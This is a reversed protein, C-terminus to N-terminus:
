AGAIQNKTENKPCTYLNRLTKFEQRLDFMERIRKVQHKFASIFFITLSLFGLNSISGVGRVRIIGAGWIAIEWAIYVALTILLYKVYRRKCITISDYLNDKGLYHIRYFRKADEELFEYYLAGPDRIIIDPEIDRILDEFRSLRKFYWTLVTKSLFYKTVFHLGWLILGFSLAIALPPSTVALLQTLIGSLGLLVIIAGLIAYKRNEKRLDQLAESMSNDNVLIYRKLFESSEPSFMKLLIKKTDVESLLASQVNFIMLLEKLGFGFFKRFDVSLFSRLYGPIVCSGFIALIIKDAEEKFETFALSIELNVWKSDISNPTLLVVFYDCEWIGQSIKDMLSDGPKISGEDIWVEVGHNKLGRALPEAFLPKDKHAHCLFVKKPNTLSSANPHQRTYLVPASAAKNGPMLVANKGFEFAKEYTEGAGLADYFGAAFEIATVSDIESSMGIVVNIHRNIAKAQLQSYAANLVVCKVSGAFLEFLGSLADPQILAAMGIEDEVLLGDKKGSGCFHVIDPKYDLMARRLDKTRVALWPKIDFQDRYKSRHLGESIERVEEDLRLRSCDKPNAALVLIKTKKKM